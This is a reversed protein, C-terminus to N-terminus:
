CLVLVKGFEKYRKSYLKDLFGKLGGKFSFDSMEYKWGYEKSTSGLLTRLRQNQTSPQYWPFDSSNKSKKRMVAMWDILAKNAIQVKEPMKEGGLDILLKPAMKKRGTLKHPVPQLSDRWKGNPVNHLATLFDQTVADILYQHRISHPLCHTALVSDDSPKFNEEHKTLAALM